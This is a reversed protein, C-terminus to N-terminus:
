IGAEFKAQSGGITNIYNDVAIITDDLTIAPNDDNLIFFTKNALAGPTVGSNYFYSHITFLKPAASTSQPDSGLAAGISQASQILGGLTVIDVANVSVPSMPISGAQLTIGTGFADAATSFRIVDDSTLNAITIINRTDIDSASPANHSADRSGIFVTNAGGGLVIRDGGGAGDVRVNQTWASLDIVDRSPTGLVALSAGAALKSALAAANPSALDAVALTLTGDVGGASVKAANAMLASVETASAGTATVSIDTAKSLLGATVADSIVADGLVLRPLGSLTDVNAAGLGLAVIQATEMGTADVTVAAPGLGVPSLLNALMGADLSKDISLAKVAAAGQALADIQATTMNAADVRVDVAAIGPAGLVTAIVSADASNKITIWSVGALTAQVAALQAASMGAVGVEIAFPMGGARAGLLGAITAPSHNSTLTATGSLGLVKDLNAAILSLETDSASGLQTFRLSAPAAIGILGATAADTYAPNGLLMTPPNTFTDVKAAGIGIAAIKGAATMGAGSVTVTASQATRTGLLAELEAQTQANGLTFTGTIGDVAIKSVSAAVATLQASSMGTADVKANALSYAAFKAQITTASDAATVTLSPEPPAPPVVGNALDTAAAVSAPSDTILALASKALALDNSKLETAFYVGFETKNIFRARDAVTQAYDADGMGDPKAGLPTSAITSIQQVLSAKAAANGPGGQADLATSWFALGGADPARGFVSTYFATVFQASTQGLPYLAQAEPATMM